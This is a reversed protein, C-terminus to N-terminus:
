KIIVLADTYGNASSWSEYGSASDYAVLYLIKPTTDAENFLSTYSTNELVKICPITITNNNVEYEYLDILDCRGKTLTIKLANDTTYECEDVYKYKQENTDREVYKDTTSDYEYQGNVDVQYYGSSYLNESYGIVLGYISSTNVL